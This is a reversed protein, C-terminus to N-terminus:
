FHKWLYLMKIFGIKKKKFLVGRQFLCIQNVSKYRYLFFILSVFSVVAVLDFCM